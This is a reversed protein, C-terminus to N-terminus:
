DTDQEEDQTQVDVPCIGFLECISDLRAAADDRTMYDKIQLMPTHSIKHVISRTVADIVDLDEASLHRLKGNLKQMEELRIEEFKNLMATIVPVAGFTRFRVMFEELEERIIDEVKSVEIRRAASHTEVAAQLDDINYVFVGDLEEVGPEIDRPVAIDIFFLPRGHRVRMAAAVTNRSIIPQAASASTVVIDAFGLASPIDEFSIPRGGFREAISVAREYTRNAVLINGVGSALLHTATLEGMEGAGIILVTRGKLDDFISKALSAAVSSVSFAGRGIETETRARKGVNLAKQFLSNLVAGTHGSQSAASYANKVQNLIQAEGIVMSDIGSAVRFLHEVAKHGAHRYLHPEFDSAATAFFRSMWATILADDSKATTAAYVETRNCTSLILCEANRPHSALDDLAEPLRTEPVSLKERLEIPATRHNLGIVVLHM